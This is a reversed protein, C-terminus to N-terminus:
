QFQQVLWSINISPEKGAKNQVAELSTGSSNQAWFKEYAIRNNNNNWTRAQIIPLSLPTSSTVMFIRYQPTQWESKCAALFSHPNELYGKTGPYSRWIVNVFYIRSTRDALASLQNQANLTYHLIWERKLIKIRITIQQIM